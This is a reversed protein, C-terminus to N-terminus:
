GLVGVYFERSKAQDQVTLFHAVFFGRQPVPIDSLSM